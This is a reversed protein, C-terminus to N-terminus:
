LKVKKITDIVWGGIDFIFKTIWCLVAFLVYGIAISTIFNM